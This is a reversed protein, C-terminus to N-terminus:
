NWHAKKMFNIVCSIYYYYSIYKLIADMVQIEVGM